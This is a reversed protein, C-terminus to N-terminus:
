GTADAGRLERLRAVSGSVVLTEGVRLIRDAPPNAEYSREGQVIALVFVGSDRLAGVTMGDTAGDIAGGAVVEVEEMSFALEGHSLAADIFDVVRPRTALEALRHGAMTYPSVVRNAGAQILRSESDATNARAVVFLGPNIARASLIVYVNHADSDITTILGRAREIGAARLTAEETADGEVELFGERRARALSEPLIDIVVVKLGSHVLERAVTLGVRGYGCLIYHDRLKSVADAMRKAERRGSTAEVVLYEAVIGVSGFIIGVGTLALLMTWVRGAESLPQVERFGVTTLTIVTMYLADLLRWGPDLVLYGATGVAICGVIVALWIRVHTATIAAPALPAAPAILAPRAPRHAGTLRSAAGHAVTGSRGPRDSEGM